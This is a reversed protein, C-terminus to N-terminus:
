SLWEQELRNITENQSTALTISKTLGANVRKEIDLEHAVNIADIKGSYHYIAVGGAATIGVFFAITAAIILNKIESM